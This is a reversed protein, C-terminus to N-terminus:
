LGFDASRALAISWQSAALFISGREASSTQPLLVEDMRDAPVIAAGQAIEPDSDTEVRPGAVDVVKESPGAEGLEIHRERCRHEFAGSRQTGVIIM